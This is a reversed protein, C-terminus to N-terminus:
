ECVEIGAFIAFNQYQGSPQHRSCGLKAGYKRKLNTVTMTLLRLKAPMCLVPVYPYLGEDAPARWTPSRVLSTRVITGVVPCALKLAITDLREGSASRRSAGEGTWDVVYGNSATVARHYAPLSCTPNEAYEMVAQATPRVGSPFLPAM